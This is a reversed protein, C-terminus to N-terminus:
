GSSARWFIGGLHSFIRQSPHSFGEKGSRYRRGLGKFGVLLFPLGGSKLGEFTPPSSIPPESGCGMLAGVRSLDGKCYVGSGGWRLSSETVSLGTM